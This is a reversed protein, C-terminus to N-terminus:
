EDRGAEVKQCGSIGKADEYNKVKESNWIAQILWHTGKGTPKRKKTTHMEAEEHRKM